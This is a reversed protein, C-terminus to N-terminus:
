IRRKHKTLDICMHHALPAEPTVLQIINSIRDLMVQEHALNFLQRHRENDLM